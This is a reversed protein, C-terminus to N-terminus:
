NERINPDLQPKDFDAIKKWFIILSGDTDKRMVKFAVLIDADRFSIARLVFAHGISVPFRNRLTFADTEYQHAKRQEVRADLINIPAKYKLLFAVEPTEVIADSLPINGLDGMLGYDAGAFGASLYNQELMIQAIKQYDHSGTTFSYCAGGEQPVAIQRGYVERPMLRFVKVGDSEAQKIDTPSPSLLDEVVRDIQASLDKIQRFKQERSIEQTFAVSSFLCLFVVAPILKM